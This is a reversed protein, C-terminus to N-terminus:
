RCAGSPPRRSLFEASPAVFFPLSSNSPNLLLLRPAAVVQNRFEEEGMEALNKELVPLFADVRDQMHQATYTSSQIIFRLNMVTLDM